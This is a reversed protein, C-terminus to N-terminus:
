HFDDRDVIWFMAKEIQVDDLLFSANQFTSM